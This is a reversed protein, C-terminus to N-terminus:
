SRSINFLACIMWGVNFSTKASANKLKPWGIYDHDSIWVPMCLARQIPHHRFSYYPNKDEQLYLDFEKM